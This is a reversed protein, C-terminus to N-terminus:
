GGWNCTCYLGGNLLNFRTIHGATGKATVVGFVAELHFKCEPEVSSCKIKTFYKESVCSHYSALM